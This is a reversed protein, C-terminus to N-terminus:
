LGTNNPICISHYCYVSLIAGLEQKSAAPQQEEQLCNPFAFEQRRHAKENMVNNILVLM